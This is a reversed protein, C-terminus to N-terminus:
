NECPLVPDLSLGPQVQQKQELPFTIVPCGTAVDGHSVHDGAM